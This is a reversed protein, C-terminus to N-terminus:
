YRGRYKLQGTRFDARGEALGDGKLEKCELMLLADARPADGDVLKSLGPILKPQNRLGPMAVIGRSILLVKGVPWRFREHVSWSAVQPVEARVQQTGTGSPVSLNIPTMKEIQDVSCKVAAEVM